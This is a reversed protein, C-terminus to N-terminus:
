LLLAGPRRLRRDRTFGMPLLAPPYPNFGAAEGPIGRASTGRHAAPPKPYGLDWLSPWVFVSDPKYSPKLSSFARARSADPRKQANRPTEVYEFAPYINLLKLHSMRM